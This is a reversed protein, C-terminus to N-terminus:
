KQVLGPQPVGTRVLQTLEHLSLEVILKEDPLIGDRRLSKGLRRVVLRLEHLMHVFRSKSHERLAVGGLAYPLIFQM